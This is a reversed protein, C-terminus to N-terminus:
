RGIMTQKTIFTQEPKNKKRTKIQARFMNTNDKLQMKSAFHDIFLDPDERKTFVPEDADPMVHKMDAVLGPIDGENEAEYVTEKSDRTKIVWDFVMSPDYISFPIFASLSSDNNLAWSDHKKIEKRSVKKDHNLEGGVLEMPINVEVKWDEHEDGIIGAIDVMSMGYASCGSGENQYRPWFAGGYYNSAPPKGEDSRNFGEMFHVIKHAAEENIHYKVYALKGLRSFLKIDKKIDSESDLKGGMAVGLIGLGIKEKLMLERKEKMSTSIMATYMSGGVLPSELRAVLHGLLYQRHHLLKAKYGKTTSKVLAAPSEWLIPKISKMVFITLVHKDEVSPISDQSHTTLSLVAFVFPAFIGITTKM